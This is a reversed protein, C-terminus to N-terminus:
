YLAQDRRLLPLFHRNLVYFSFICNGWTLDINFQNRRESLHAPSEKEGDRIFPLYDVPKREGSILNCILYHLIHVLLCLPVSKDEEEKKKKLSLVVHVCACM